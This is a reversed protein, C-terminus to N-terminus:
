LARKWGIGRRLVDAPWITESLSHSVEVHGAACLSFSPAESEQVLDVLLLSVGGFGTLVLREQAWRWVAGQGQWEGCDRERSQGRRTGSVRKQRDACSLREWMM